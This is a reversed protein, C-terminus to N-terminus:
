PRRKPRKPKADGIDVSPAPKKRRPPRGKTRRKPKKASGGRSAPSQAGRKPSTKEKLIPAAAEGDRLLQLTPQGDVLGVSASAFGEAAAFGDVDGQHQDMHASFRTWLVRAEDPPLPQGDIVACLLSSM